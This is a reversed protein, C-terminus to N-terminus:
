AREVASQTENQADEETLHQLEVAVAWNLDVITRKWLKVTLWMQSLEDALGLPDEQSLAIAAKTHQITSKELLRQLIPWGPGQRMERLAIREERTLEREPDAIAAPQAPAAAQQTLMGFDPLKGAKLAALEDNLPVGALYKELNTTPSAM